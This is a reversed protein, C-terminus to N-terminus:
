SAGGIQSLLHSINTLCEPVAPSGPMPFGLWATAASGASMTALILYWGLARMPPPAERWAYGLLAVDAALRRVWATPQPLAPVGAPGLAPHRAASDDGEVRLPGRAQETRSRWRRRQLSM